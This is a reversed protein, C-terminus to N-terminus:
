GGRKMQTTVEIYPKICVSCNLNDMLTSIIFYFMTASVKGGGMAHQHLETDNLHCCESESLTGRVCITRSMAGDTSSSM